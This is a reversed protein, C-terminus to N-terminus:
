QEDYRLSFTKQNTPGTASSATTQYQMVMYTSSGDATISGSLDFSGLSDHFAVNNSGPLSTPMAATAVTSTATVPTAFQSAQVSGIFDISEGTGFSGASLWFRLNNIKTFTGSWSGFMYKEFSNSGIVIPNTAPDLEPSGLDGMNINAISGDVIGPATSYTEGFQFTAVM